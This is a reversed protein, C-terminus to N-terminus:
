LTNAKLYNISGIYPFTKLNQLTKVNDYNKVVFLVFTLKLKLQLIM